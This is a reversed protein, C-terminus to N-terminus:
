TRGRGAPLLMELYSRREVPGPCLAEALTVIQQRAADLGAEDASLELELFEGVGDVRDWAIEVSQGQWDLLAQRREKRVEAVATFGLAVLLEGFRAAGDTGGSLPLELERRTKTAADIRPGKYTIFSAGESRRIRLAEDTSAFDRAPHGFYCDVQEVTPGFEAGMSHLRASLGAADEIRYKCEVEYNM